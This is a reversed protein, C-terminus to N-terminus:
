LAKYNSKSHRSDRGDRYSGPESTSHDIGGDRVVPNQLQESTPTHAQDVFGLVEFKPPEHRQLEQGVFEHLFVARQFPEPQFRARSRRQIMGVDAGNVLDAGVVSPREDGHLEQFPLGELVEDLAAGHLGLLDELDGDIHGLPQIRGVCLADNMAVDLRRVDEDVLAPVGLNQIESKRFYHRGIRQEGFAGGQGLSFRHLPQGVGASQQPRHGIHRRFLCAPAFQVRAAVQKRESDYEVLHPGPHQREAAVRGVHEVGQKMARRHRRQPEVGVQRNGQFVDDVFTQLFVAVEAVLM